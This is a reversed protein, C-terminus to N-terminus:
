MFTVRHTRSTILQPLPMMTYNYSWFHVQQLARSDKAAVSSITRATPFFPSWFFCNLLFHLQYFTKLAQKLSNEVETFSNIRLNPSPFANALHNTVYRVNFEHSPEKHRCCGELKGTVLSLIAPLLMLFLWCMHGLSSVSVDDDM